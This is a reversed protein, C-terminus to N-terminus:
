NGFRGGRRDRPPAPTTFVTHKAGTETTKTTASRPTGGRPTGGGGDGGGQGGGGDGGGKGGKGGGRYNKRPRKSPPLDNTSHGGSDRGGGASTPSEFVTHKAGTETLKTIIKASGESGGDRREGDSGRKRSFGDRSDHGDSGSPAFM